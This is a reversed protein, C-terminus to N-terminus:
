LDDSLRNGFLRFLFGFLLAGALVFLLLGFLSGTTERLASGGRYYARLWAGAGLLGGLLAGLPFHFSSSSRETM